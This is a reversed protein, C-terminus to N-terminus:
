RDAEWYWYDSVSMCKVSIHSLETDLDVRGWVEGAGVGIAARRIDEERAFRQVCVAASEGYVECCWLARNIATNHQVVTPKHCMAQM